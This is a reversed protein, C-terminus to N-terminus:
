VVREEVAFDTRFGESGIRHTARTVFYRRDFRDGLGSLRITDGAQLDPVGVTEGQGSVLGSRIRDLAAQAVADAEATSDVPVRLTETGSGPGDHSATGVTETKTAPDWHRVTVEAVQEARTTTVSLSGLSEGYRLAVTPDADYGPPAFRVEGRRCSLAFGNRRARRRLFDYDSEADQVVKQHTVDTPEIEQGAFEYEGVVASAVDSDTTEDWSRTRTGRTTAQLPGYGALEVSPPGSAPYDAAVESVSGVFADVLNDAYGVAIEVGTGTEFDAWDLDPFSVRRTTPDFEGDFRASFRDAGTVTTDVSLDTVVGGGARYTADGVSLEFAPEYLGGYASKLAALTGETDTSPAGRGGPERSGLSV